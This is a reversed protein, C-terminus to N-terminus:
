ISTDLYLANIMSSGCYPCFPTFAYEFGENDGDCVYRLLPETGCHGCQYTYDPRCIWSSDM